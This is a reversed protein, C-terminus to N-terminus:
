TTTEGTSIPADTACERHRDLFVKSVIQRFKGNAERPIEDVHVIDIRIVSGLYRRLDETLSAEDQKGFTDGCVVNVTVHDTTDQVLQAESIGGSKKFLFDLRGLQRGDPTIIYSEIRGDIKAVIPAARGCSCSQDTLSALDGISYRILPMVPNRLGTAIIRRSPSSVGDLELLEVVGHEMDVHYAHKECESIFVCSETASYHDGVDCQFAEGLVRRQHPLLTESGTFTMRPPNALRINNDLLYSALLYLGSPYGCYYAVRRGQLYDVLVPLNQQTMHHVSVYTQNMVFNRRWFPPKMMSMPIVSRGAFVVFPEGFEVGFRSRHRWQVAWHFPITDVDMVLKLAKGTTGGTVQNVRRRAPGGRSILDEYRQRVTEKELIPLKPLDEATRIDGPKLKREDFVERYYPVTDYAHRILERLKENQYNRQEEVSWWESKSLFRRAEHFVRNHRERRMRIGAASCALNQLFVPMRAYLRFLRSESM